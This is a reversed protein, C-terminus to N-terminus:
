QINKEKMLNELENVVVECVDYQSPILDVFQVNQGLNESCISIVEALCDNEALKNGLEIGKQKLEDFQLEQTRPQLTNKDTINTNNNKIADILMNNFESVPVSVPLEFSKKLYDIKDNTGFATQNNYSNEFTIYRNKDDGIYLYGLLSVSQCVYQKTNRNLSLNHINLNPNAKNTIDQTIISQAIFHIPYGLNRIKQIGRLKARYRQVGEGFGGLDKLIEATSDKSVTYTEMLEEYKDVTDIVVCSFMKKAEPSNLQSIVSNMDSVSNIKVAMIGDIHQYRDEFMLFLPKKDDTSAETLIKYMTTTKGVGSVGTLMMSYQITNISVENPKTNCINIM